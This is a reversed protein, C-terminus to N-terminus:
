IITDRLKIVNFLRYFFSEWLPWTTFLCKGQRSLAASLSLSEILATFSKNGRINGGM